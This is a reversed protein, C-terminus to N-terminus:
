PNDTLEEVSLATYDKYWKGNIKICRFDTYVSEYEGLDGKVNLSFDVYAIQSVEKRYGYTENLSENFLVIEEDEAYTVANIKYKVTFDAGCKSSYFSTATNLPETMHLITQEEDYYWNEKNYEKIEADYLSYYLETDNTNIAQTLTKILKQPKSGTAIGTIIAATMLCVAFCTIIIVTKKFNLKKSKEAPAGSTKKKGKQLKHACYPCTVFNDPTQRHCHNCYM